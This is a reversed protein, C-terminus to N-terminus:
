LASPNTALATNLSVHIATLMRHQARGGRPSQSPNGHVTYRQGMARYSGQPSASRRKAEAVLEPGRSGDLPFSECNCRREELPGDPAM